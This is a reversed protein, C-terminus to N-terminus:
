TTIESVHTTYGNQCNGKQIFSQQSLLARKKAAKREKMMEWKEVLIGLVEWLILSISSM